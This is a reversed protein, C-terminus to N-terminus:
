GLGTEGRYMAALQEDRDDVTALLRRVLEDTDSSGWPWLHGVGSGPQPNEPGYTAMHRRLEVLERDSLPESM